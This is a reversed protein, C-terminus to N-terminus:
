KSWCNDDDDNDGDTGAAYVQDVTGDADIDDQKFTFTGCMDGNQAKSTDIAANIILDTSNSGTVTVKYYGDPSPQNNAFDYGLQTLDNTYASNSARWKEEALQVALVVAKADARRARKAYDQYSPLAIAAIIGIVAVVIMLEILTFGKNKLINM